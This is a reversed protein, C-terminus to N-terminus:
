PAAALRDRHRVPEPHRASALPAVAVAAPKGFPPPSRGLLTSLALRSSARLRGNRGNPSGPLAARLAHRLVLAILYAARHTGGFHKRTYQLRSYAAQAHLRPVFGAKVAHHVITMQPLHRVEWGAAKVRRCLDVEEAYMFFREDFLGASLLAERRVFLFSGPTWDCATELGHAAPDIEREGAWHPCRGLRELALAEGLARLANPFRRITPYLTGDPTVQRVGAVGVSPREDLLSVLEGFNGERVETDPNLFLVYRADSTAAGRNNAHGFGRNECRITRTEPFDDRVFPEVLRNAGNDVVTVDISASGRHRYISGLCSPLWREDDHSVIVVALDVM